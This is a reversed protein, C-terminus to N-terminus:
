EVWGLVNRIISWRPPREVQQAGGLMWYDYLSDITGRAEETVIWANMAELLDANGRAVAYSVPFAVTPRPVVVSYSPYLVTWASGEEAMDAIADIGPMGSALMADQAVMDQIPVLEAAPLIDRILSVAEESSELGVKLAEGATHMAGWERFEDRRHDKVILGISSTYIPVTLGFLQTRGESVPLSRMYIDCLGNDLSIAAEAESLAPYFELTLQRRSALRHAM